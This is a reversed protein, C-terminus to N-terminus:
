SRLRFTSIAARCGLAFRGVESTWGAIKVALMM